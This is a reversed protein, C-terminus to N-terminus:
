PAASPPVALVTSAPGASPLFSPPTAGPFVSQFPFPPASGPTREAVGVPRAAAPIPAPASSSGPHAGSAGIPPVPWSADVSSGTIESPGALAPDCDADAFLLDRQMRATTQYRDVPDWRMARAAVADLSPPLGPIEASPPPYEGRKERDAYRELWLLEPERERYPLRGALMRYLLVGCAYIDSRSDVQRGLLMEPAIYAPKGMVTGQQTINAGAEGGGGPGALGFDLLKVLPRDNGQPVLFVNSPGLDRHIVRAAHAAGLGDLVQLMMSIADRPPLVPTRLLVQDLGEGDLLEMILYPKGGGPPPLSWEFVNVVNPHRVSCLAGVEREFRVRYEPSAALHEHLYKAALRRRTALKEVEYVSGMGGAAIQRVFRYGPIQQAEVM